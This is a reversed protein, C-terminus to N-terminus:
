ASVIRRLEEMTLPSDRRRHLMRHCNSCVVALDTDPNIESEELLTSIPTKHHVEIFGEGLEGYVRGFDFGCVQCVTSHIRIAEARLRPNREYVAVLRETRKGEKATIAAFQEANAIEGAIVAIDGEGDAELGLAYACVCCKHRGPNAQWDHLSKLVAVPAENGHECKEVGSQTSFKARQVPDSAIAYACIPCKHRGAGAQSEPLGDILAARVKERNPCPM